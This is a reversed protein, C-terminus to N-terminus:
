LRTLGYKILGCSPRRRRAASRSDSDAAVALARRAASVRRVELNSLVFLADQYIACDDLNSAAALAHTKTHDGMRLPM